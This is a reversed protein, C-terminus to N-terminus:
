AVQAPLAVGEHLAVVAGTIPLQIEDDALAGREHEDLDFQASPGAESLWHLGDGWTFLGLDAGQGM